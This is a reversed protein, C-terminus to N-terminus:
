GRRAYPHDGAVVGLGELKLMLAAPTRGHAAVLSDFDAREKLFREVLARAEDATWRVGRAFLRGTTEIEDYRRIRADKDATLPAFGDPLEIQVAAPAAAAASEAPSVAKAPKSSKRAKGPTKCALPWILDILVQALAKSDELASHAGRGSWNYGVLPALTELKSNPAGIPLKKALKLSCEFRHGFPAKAWEYEAEVFRADFPASHAWVPTDPDGLFDNLEPLVERFRPKGRLFDNTLGHVDSAHVPVERKPDFYSHFTNGTIQGDIIEVAGLEVIRHGGKPTFGTTETDLVIHRGMPIADLLMKTM